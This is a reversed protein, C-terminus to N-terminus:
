KVLSFVLLGTLITSTSIWGVKLWKKKQTDKEITLKLDVIEADKLLVISNMNELLKSDNVIVSDKRVIVEELVTVEAELLSRLTDCENAQLLRTAISRAEDITYCLVTDEKGIQAYSATWNNLTLLLLLILRIM